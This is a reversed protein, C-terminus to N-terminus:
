GKNSYSKVLECTRNDIVHAVEAGLYTVENYAVIYVTCKDDTTFTETTNNRYYYVTFM